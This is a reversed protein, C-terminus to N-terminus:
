MKCAFAFLENSASVSASATPFLSLLLEEASFHLQALFHVYVFTVM